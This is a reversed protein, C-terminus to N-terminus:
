SREPPEQDTPKSNAGNEQQKMEEKAKAYGAAFGEQRGEDRYHDKLRNALWMERGEIFTYTIATAGIAFYSFHEAIAVVTELGGTKPSGLAFLVSVAMGAALQLFFAIFAITYWWSQRSRRERM